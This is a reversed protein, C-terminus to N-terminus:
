VDGDEDENEGDEDTRQLREFFASSGGEDDNIDEGDEGARYLREFLERRRDLLQQLRTHANRRWRDNASDGGDVKGEPPLGHTVRELSEARDFLLGLGIREIHKFMAASVEQKKMPAELHVILTGSEEMRIGGAKFSNSISALYEGFAVRHEEACTINPYLSFLLYEVDRDIRVFELITRSRFYFLCFFGEAGGQLRGWFRGDQRQYYHEINRFTKEFHDM